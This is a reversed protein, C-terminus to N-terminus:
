IRGPFDSLNRKVWLGTCEHEPCPSVSDRIANVFPIRNRVASDTNGVRTASVPECKIRRSVQLVKVSFHLVGGNIVDVYTQEVAMLAENPFNDAKASGKGHTTRHCPQDLM